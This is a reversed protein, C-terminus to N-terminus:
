EDENPADLDIDEFREGEQDSQSDNSQNESLMMKGFREAREHNNVISQYESIYLSLFILHKCNLSILLVTLYYVNVSSQGATLLILDSGNSM